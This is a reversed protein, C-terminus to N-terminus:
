KVLAPETNDDDNNGKRLQQILKYLALRRQKKEPTEKRNVYDWVSLNIGYNMTM